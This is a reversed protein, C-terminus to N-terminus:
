FLQRPLPALLPCPLCLHARGEAHQLHLLQLTIGRETTHAAKLLHIRIEVAQPFIRSRDIIM